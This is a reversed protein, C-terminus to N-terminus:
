SSIYGCIIVSLSHYVLKTCLCCQFLGESPAPKSESVQFIGEDVKEIVIDQLVHKDPKQIKLGSDVLFPCKDFTAAAIIYL